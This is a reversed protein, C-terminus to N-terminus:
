IVHPSALTSITVAPLRPGRAAPGPRGARQLQKATQGNTLSPMKHELCPGHGALMSAGSGLRGDSSVDRLRLLDRDRGFYM